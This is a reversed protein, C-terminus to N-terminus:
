FFAKNPQKKWSTIAPYNLLEKNRRGAERLVMVQFEAPLRMIFKMLQSFNGENANNAISGTLAFLVSPEEPIKIDEPKNLIDKMKPLDDYIKCFTVFERAVGESLTGAMLPLFNKKDTNYAMLRNAFEWGRPSAYTKDTHDPDFTYIVSPKFQIYDTIMHSIGNSMAWECWEDANVVLDIHVMRSQLATSMTEVIANDTELNGACVMAVNKHLKHQGVMRDLVIKYSAKQVAQSASNMEDFFLLWGEYGEPIADGELPFHKMPFFDSRGDKISPFGSMDTPEAQSLRFDIMKLNFEKAISHTIASKGIGPSGHIMPVLGSKIYAIIMDKAQVATVQM